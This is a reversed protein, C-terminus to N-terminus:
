FDSIVYDSAEQSVPPGQCKLRLMRSLKQTKLDLHRDRDLVQTREIVSCQREDIRLGAGNAARADLRTAVTDRASRAPLRRVDEFWIIRQAPLAPSKSLSRNAFTFSLTDPTALAVILGEIARPSASEIFSGQPSRDQLQLTLRM